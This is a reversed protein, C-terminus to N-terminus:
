PDPKGTGPWKLAEGAKFHAWATQGVVRDWDRVPIGQEPRLAILDQENIVRGVEIDRRAVIARRVLRVTEQEVALLGKGPSGLMAEVTRVSCVLSQFGTPDLSARQDPGPLNRDLTFHKEIVTAGLAVASSAALTGESHDSLGVPREFTTRLSIMASLNVDEDKTPYATTCQLVTADVDGSPSAKRLTDIGFAIEELTCMGTSIIIPLEAKGALRLLPVHLVEGSPIKIMGMKLDDVLFKLSPADFATSLFTIGIQDCHSKLEAFQLLTLELRKVLDFMTQADSGKQYEVLPTDRRLVLESSFTQFKIVDAGVDKAVDVLKHALEISGNHNVGAEAIILTKSPMPLGKTQEQPPLRHLGLM